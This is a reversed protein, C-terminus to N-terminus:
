TPARPDTLPNLCLGPHLLHPLHGKTPVPGKLPPSFWASARYISTHGLAECPSGWPTLTIPVLSNESPSGEIEQHLGSPDLFQLCYTCRDSPFHVCFCGLHTGHLAPRIRKSHRFLQSPILHCHLPDPRLSKRSRCGAHQGEWQPHRRPCQPRLATSPLCHQHKHFCWRVDPLSLM